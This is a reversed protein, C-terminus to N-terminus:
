HNQMEKNTCIQETMMIANEHVIENEKEIKEAIPYSRFMQKAVYTQEAV